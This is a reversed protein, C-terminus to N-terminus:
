GAREVLATAEERALEVSVQQVRTMVGTIEEGEYPEDHALWLGHRRSEALIMSEVRQAQMDDGISIHCEITTSYHADALAELFGSAEPFQAGAAAADERALIQTAEAFDGIPLTRVPGPQSGAATPFVLVADLMAAVASRDCVLLQKPGVRPATVRVIADDKCWLIQGHAEGEGPAYAPLAWLSRDASLVVDLVEAVDDDVRQRFRGDVAGRAILGREVANWGDDDLTPPPTAPFYPKDMMFAMLTLEADSFVLETSVIM